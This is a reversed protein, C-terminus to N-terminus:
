LSMAENNDGEGEADVSIESQPQVTPDPSQAVDLPPTSSKRNIHLNALAIRASEPDQVSKPPPDQLDKAVHEAHSEAVREEHSKAGSVREHDEVDAISESPPQPAPAASSAAGESPWANYIWHTWKDAQGRAGAQEM